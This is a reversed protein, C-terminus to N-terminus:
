LLPFPFSHFLHRYYRTVSDPNLSKMITEHYGSNYITKHCHVGQVTKERSHRILSPYLYSAIFITINTINEHPERPIYVLIFYGIFTCSIHSSIFLVSVTIFSACNLTVTQTFSLYTCCYESNQSNRIRDFILISFSINM